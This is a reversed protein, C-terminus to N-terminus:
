DLIPFLSLKVKGSYPRKLQSIQQADEFSFAKGYKALKSLFELIRM